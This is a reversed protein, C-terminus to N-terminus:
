ENYQIPPNKEKPPLILTPFPTFPTVFKKGFAPLYGAGAMRENM